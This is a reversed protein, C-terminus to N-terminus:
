QPEGQKRDLIGTMKETSKLGHGTFVSVVIEGPESVPLYDLLGAVTAAATPEICHGRRGVQRLAAEIAPEGVTIFHGGSSKVADIIQRGRIPRAIAIGEALTTRTEPVPIEHLDGEFALFLPACAASQVAIIRPMGDILNAKQLECFGTYAGLLLTGNGVPLVVTDPRKWGLQEWIEFAFTKTGQLFFPNWSHGAYYHREAAELAANATDQRSGPTKFLRAGYLQIQALKGPSTDAPVYIDCDIGALACYAAIACGANGSSDEVVHPIGLEVLKSVLVSAGRDKYSGTPFLHDQKMLVSRGGLDVALLPTSGEGMSVISSEGAVPLAERYRWMGPPRGAIKEPDLPRDGELDLFSGCDCRWRIEDLPYSKGCAHCLYSDM